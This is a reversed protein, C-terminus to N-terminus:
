LGVRTQERIKGILVLRSVEHREPIGLVDAYKMLDDDSLEEYNDDDAMSKAVTQQRRLQADMAEPSQHSVGTLRDGDAPDWEADVDTSAGGNSDLLIEDRDQFHATEAFITAEDEATQEDRNIVRETKKKKEM